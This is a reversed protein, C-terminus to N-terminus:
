QEAMAINPKNVIGSSLTTYTKLQATLMINRIDWYREDIEVIDDQTYSYINQSNDKISAVYMCQYSIQTKDESPIEVLNINLVNFGWETSVYTKAAKLLNVGTDENTPEFNIESGDLSFINCRTYLINLTELLACTGLYVEFKNSKNVPNHIMSSYKLYMTIINEDSTDIDINLSKLLSNRNQEAVVNDHNTESETIANINETCALIVRNMILFTDYINQPTSKIQPLLKQFTENIDPQTNDCDMPQTNPEINM